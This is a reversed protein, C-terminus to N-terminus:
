IRVNRPASVPTAEFPKRSSTMWDLLRTLVVMVVLAAIM